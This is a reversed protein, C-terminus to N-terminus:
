LTSAKAKLILPSLRLYDGRLPRHDRLAPDEGSGGALEVASDALLGAASVARAAAHQDTQVDVGARVYGCLGCLVELRRDPHATRLIGFEM